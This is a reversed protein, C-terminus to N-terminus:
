DDRSEEEAGDRGVQPRQGWPFKWHILLSTLQLTVGMAAFCLTSGALWFWTLLYTASWLPATLYKEPGPPWDPRM